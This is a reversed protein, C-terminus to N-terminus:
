GARLAALVPATAPRTGRWLEFAEAAQEVLLGLGDHAQAAGERRAEEIFPEAAHGYSLDYALSGKAFVGPPLKPAQGSHGASTANIVLDFADGKLALFTCPRVAGLGKFVAAVEEPKWPTRGAIALDAPKESILPAVLGRAAGGAGLVLVRRGALKVGLRALDRLLGVGDTNDGHWRCPTRILTNVSGALEARQTKTDCFAAAAIKHPLTINIGKYNQAHLEGLRADLDVPAIEIAIYSLHAGLSEAFAAHIRPSLSHAIPQGIVAYHDM